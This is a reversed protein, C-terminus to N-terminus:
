DDWEDEYAHEIFDTEFICLEGNKYVGLQHYTAEIFDEISADKNEERVKWNEFDDETFHVELNFWM